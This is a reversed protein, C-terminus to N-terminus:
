NEKTTREPHSVWQWHGQEFQRALAELQGARIQAMPELELLYTCAERLFTPVDEM